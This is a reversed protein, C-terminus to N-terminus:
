LAGSMEIIRDVVQEVSLGTTDLQQPVRAYKERRSDLISKIKELKNGEALLPRSGDGELRELIAAPEANLCVCLGTASLDAVNDANLVVGGGTGIVLGDRQALEKVLERELARFYPEGDTAFISSISRKEREEIIHDMDVFQVGLRSALGKGVSTKGTGM